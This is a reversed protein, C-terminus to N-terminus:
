NRLGGAARIAEYKEPVFWWAETGRSYAPKIEPRGFVDWYALFHAGKHWNPVWIHQARLVRDLARVADEMEERSSAAVVEAILADVVPDAVGAYNFSGPADAAASGFLTRLEVSPSLPMVFRGITIDFDFDQLRQQMQAPDVLVTRGAIGVRELNEIFPLVIRDFAPSPSLFEVELVAGAANRRLGDDGVEWGAADLLTSADRVATRDIKRTSSVAPVLAPETFVEPPLQDRYEELLALERGEPLGAAQMPSNEFFSDTRTYVGYFLTENSWEFNFLRGIAERVRIDQFKDRRLNFWFGQAGSPTADPLEERVVWGREVAPFDYGTAWISSTFEEHFLYAGVKLAEFAANNDTFYEYVVCDFNELGVNVPLAAGWYEPDRCYSISRGPTVEAVRFEGSSVPPTLTSRAFDVEAYYHAPLIPIQGVQSILDRTAVTTDFAVRVRRPDLATVEEVDDLRLRFNPAGQQQLTEITFVVDDATIQTGDSFRAEPRLTFIAWARDEPYEVSEAILGYVADPEDFARTMLSDHLRELGQAPEGALIFANLSDFTRSAGTGRFSLEGGLPAEPNAYDFHAFDPGYKLPGFASIGHSVTTATDAAAAALPIAAALAAAIPWTRHM